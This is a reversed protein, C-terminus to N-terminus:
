WSGAADASPVAYIMDSNTKVANLIVDYLRGLFQFDRSQKYYVEPTYDQLKIM